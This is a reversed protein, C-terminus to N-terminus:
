YRKLRRVAVDAAIYANDPVLTQKITGEATDDCAYEVLFILLAFYLMYNEKLINFFFFFFVM